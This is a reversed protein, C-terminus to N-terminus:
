FNFVANQGRESRKSPIKIYYNSTKDSCGFLQLCIKAEALVSKSSSEHKSIRELKFRKTSLCCAKGM